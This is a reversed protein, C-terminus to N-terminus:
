ILSIALIVCVRMTLFVFKFFFYLFFLDVVDILRELTNQNDTHHSVHLDPLILMM